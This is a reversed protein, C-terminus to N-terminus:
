AKRLRTAVCPADIKEDALNVGLCYGNQMMRSATTRSRGGWASLRDRVCVSDPRQTLGIGTIMLAGDPTRVFDLGLGLRGGARYPPMSQKLILRQVEVGNLQFSLTHARKAGGGVDKWDSLILDYNSDGYVNDDDRTRVVAPLNTTRDFLVTFTGVRTKIAVAPLSLQGVQQDPLAAISQPDELARALLRPSARERERLHAALRIGSMPTQVGKDDIVVGFTPTTIESYKLREVAPYKM